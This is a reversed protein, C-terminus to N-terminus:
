IDGRNNIEIVDIVTLQEDYIVRFNGVRLRFYGTNGKMQKVDGQPLHNIATMIRKATKPTQKKLFKLAQKSLNVQKM